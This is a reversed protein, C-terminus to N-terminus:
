KKDNWDQLDFRIVRVKVRVSQEAECDIKLSKGTKIHEVGSPQGVLYVVILISQAHSLAM